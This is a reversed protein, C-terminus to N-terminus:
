GYACSRRFPNDISIFNLVDLQLESRLIYMVCPLGQRFYKLPPLVLSIIIFIRFPLLTDKIIQSATRTKGSNVSVVTLALWWCQYVTWVLDFWGIMVLLSKLHRPVTPLADSEHNTSVQWNHTWAGDFAGTTEKIM